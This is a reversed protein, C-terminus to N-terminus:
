KVRKFYEERCMNEIDLLHQFALNFDERGVTFLGHGWVIAGRRGKVAPPLTHCLGTTGTGVEGPVIPIDGITREESCKIHCRKKNPCEKRDCDMSLIVAFKPHGHLIARNDTRLFIENHAVLESSATVGACSSGDLPCPDICGALEDLSSGTQSIYITEGLRYSINGFYSDVLGYEVTHRGAEIIAEYAEAERHFPGCLLEPCDTRPEDLHSVARDFARRQTESVTGNKFDALFDAFFLVFGAFCVSSFTVFAQEPSVTGFTVIKVKGDAKIVVSKRYLLHSGIVKASFEHGVPLDHLFTRTECDGPTIVEPYRETLYVLISQYPEAPEACILSNINMGQMVAELIPVEPAQRNWTMEDDLGCVLPAEALGGKIMKDTYKDVLQKM